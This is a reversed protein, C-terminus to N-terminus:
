KKPRPSAALQQNIQTAIIQNIRNADRASVRGSDGVSAVIAQWDEVPLTVAVLKEPDIKPPADAAFTATSLLLFALTTKM